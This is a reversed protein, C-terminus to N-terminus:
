FRIGLAQVQGAPLAQAAFQALQSLGMLFVRAIGFVPWLYLELGKVRKM